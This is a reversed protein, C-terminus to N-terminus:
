EMKRAPTGEKKTHAAASQCCVCHSMIVIFSQCLSVLHYLLLGFRLSQTTTTVFQSDPMPFQNKWNYLFLQNAAVIIPLIIQDSSLRSLLSFYGDDIGLSQASTNLHRTKKITVSPGVSTWNTIIYFLSSCFVMLIQVRPGYVYYIHTDTHTFQSLDCWHKYM